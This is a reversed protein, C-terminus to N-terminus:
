HKSVLRQFLGLESYKRAAGKLSTTNKLVGTVIMKWDSELRGKIRSIVRVRARNREEDKVNHFPMVHVLLSLSSTKVKTQFGRRWIRYSRTRSQHGRVSFPRLQGSLTPAAPIFTSNNRDAVDAEAEIRWLLCSM